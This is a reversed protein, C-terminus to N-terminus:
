LTAAKVWPQVAFFIKGAYPFSWLRGTLLPTAHAATCGCIIAQKALFMEEVIPLCDLQGM